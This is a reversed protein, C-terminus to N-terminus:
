SLLDVIAAIVAEGQVLAIDNHDAGAVDLWTKPGSAAEYVARSQEPPVISDASGAVVLLPVDLNGIREVVDYEDWLLSRV